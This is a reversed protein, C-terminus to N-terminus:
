GFRRKCSGSLEVEEEAWDPEEIGKYTNKKENLACEMIFSGCAFGGFLRLTQKDLFGIWSLKIRM